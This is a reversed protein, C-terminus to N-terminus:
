TAADLIDQSETWLSIKKIAFNSKKFNRNRPQSLLGFMNENGQNGINQVLPKICSPRTILLIVHEQTFVYDGVTSTSHQYLLSAGLPM